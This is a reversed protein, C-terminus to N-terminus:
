SGECFNMLVRMGLAQSKEPHFQIGAVRDMGAVACFRSGYETRAWVIEEDRAAAYYSHLFYFYDGESVGELLPERCVRELQNWGVHPVLLEGEFRRVRGPLLGLGSVGPAEESEEFLMQFGVCIGLLRAGGATADRVPAELGRDRLNAMSEGFHGVGPLVLRRASRIREPSSSLEFAVGLRRFARGVSGLNGVGYDVIVVSM